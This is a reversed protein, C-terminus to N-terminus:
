GTWVQRPLPGALVSVLACFQGSNDSAAGTSLNRRQARDAVPSLNAAKTSQDISQVM